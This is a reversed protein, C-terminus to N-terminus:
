TQESSPIHQVALQKKQVQDRVFYLDIEFHKTKSHLIPNTSLLVASLNDCYIIPKSTTPIHLEYLLNKLWTMEATIAAISRYEAETTSRSVAQQKKSSWSIPNAGLYIVYGTTSKRDELNSGWDADCFGKISFDPSKILHLSTNLTGCLYRLIRKVAMWHPNRPAQMYQCVKNVSFAIEPRTITIYQLSGVISRYQTIEYHATGELPQLKLGAVMPTKIPKAMHMNTRNLLDNIYKTQTLMLTRNPLQDVQIGLFYNPFGLDRVPFESQLQEVVSSIASTSSGCIIIDDVYVLIFTIHDKHFRIFLSSDMKAYYFGIRSLSLHLREFWARPAQKLGYLSKQLKCVLSKDTQIFGPPQAMYIDEQLDGNLFANAIDIQRMDWSRSVVISLIIRITAPKVVPSFTESFDFGDRQHFGKAVLRAKHRNISGDSNTKVKFVWRCGILNRGAPLTTLIWTNNKMLAKYEELMTKKWHPIAMAEKISRPEHFPNLDLKPTTTVINYAKPKHIGAKARTIM